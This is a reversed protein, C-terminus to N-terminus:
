EFFWHSLEFNEDLIAKSGFKSIFTFSKDKRDHSYTAYNVAVTKMTSLNIILRGESMRVLYCQNEILNGAEFVSSEIMGNLNILLNKNGFSLKYVDKCEGIRTHTQFLVSVKLHELDLFQKEGNSHTLLYVGDSFPEYSRLKMWPTSEWNTLNVFKREGDRHTFICVSDTLEMM